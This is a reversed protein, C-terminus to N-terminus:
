IGYITEDLTENMREAKTGRMEVEIEKLFLDIEKKQQKISDVERTVLWEELAKRIIEALSVGESSAIVRARTILNEPLYMQTRQM